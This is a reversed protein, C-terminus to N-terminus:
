VQRLLDAYDDQNRNRLRRVAQRRPADADLGLALNISTLTQQKGSFDIGLANALAALGVLNEDERSAPRVEFFEGYVFWVRDGIECDLERLYRRPSSLVCGTNGRRLTHPGFRSPIEVSEQPKLNYLEAVALPVAFDLEKKHEYSVTALQMWVGDRFYMDKTNEPSQEEQLAVVVDRELLHRPHSEGWESLVWTDDGQHAFLDSRELAHDIAEHTHEPIAAHLEDTTMPAGGLVLEAAVQGLISSGPPLLYPGRRLYGLHETFYSAIREQTGTPFKGLVTSLLEEEALLGYQDVLTQACSEAVEAFESGVLWDGLIEWQFHTGSCCEIGTESYLWTLIELLNHPIESVVRDSLGPIDELIEEVSACPMFRSVCAHAVIECAVGSQDGLPQLDLVATTQGNFIASRREDDNDLVDRLEAIAADIVVRGPHKEDLIKEGLGKPLRAHTESWRGQLDLWGALFDVDVLRDEAQITPDDDGADEGVVDVDVVDVGVIHAIDIAHLVTAYVFYEIDVTGISRLASLEDVSADLPQPFEACWAEVSSHDRQLGEPLMDAALVPSLERLPKAAYEALWLSAVTAADAEGEPIWPFIEHTDVVADAATVAPSNRDKPRVQQLMSAFTAENVIPVDVGYEQRIREVQSGADRVVMLVSHETPPGLKLGVQEASIRWEERSLELAGLVGIHDGVHLTVEPSAITPADLLARVHSTDLGLEAATERVWQVEQRTMAGSSRAQIILRRIFHEHLTRIDPWHLGQQSAHQLLEAQARGTMSGGALVSVLSRFYQRSARSLRVDHLQKFNQIWKGRAGSNREPLERPVPKVSAEDLHKFEKRALRLPKYEHLVGEVEPFVRQFAMTLAIANGLASTPASQYVGAAELYETMTPRRSAHLAAPLRQISAGWRKAPIRVDLHAFENQICKKVFDYNYAIVVRSQLVDAFDKAVYDFYPADIFDVGTLGFEEADDVECDPDVLTEWIGEVAGRSDLQVAGIEIIREEAETAATLIDLVVYKPANM